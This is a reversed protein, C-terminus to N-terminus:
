LLEIFQSMQLLIAEFKSQCELRENRLDEEYDMAMYYAEELGLISIKHKLKHVNEAAKEYSAAEINTKYDSIERPLEKKVIAILKEKFANDGGSLEEIYSLNPKEM